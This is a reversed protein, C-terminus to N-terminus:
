IKFINFELSEINAFENRGELNINLKEEIKHTTV